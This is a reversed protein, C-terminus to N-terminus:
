RGGGEDDGTRPGAAGLVRGLKELAAYEYNYATRESIGLRTSIQAMSQGRRYKRQIIEREKSRLRRVAQDIEAKYAQEEQLLTECQTIETDFAERLRMIREVAAFVPDVPVTSRPAGTINSAGGIHYLEEIRAKALRIRDLLEGIRADCGGWRWLVRRVEDRRRDVEIRQM